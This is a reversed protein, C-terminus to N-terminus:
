ETNHQVLSAELDEETSQRPGRTGEQQSIVVWSGGTRTRAENRYIHYRRVNGVPM